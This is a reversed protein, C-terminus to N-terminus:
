VRFFLCYQCFSSIKSMEEPPALFEIGIETTKRLKFYKVSRVKAEIGQIVQNDPLVFAATCMMNLAVPRLPQVVVSCGGESIDRINCHVEDKENELHLRTEINVQIRHHKRLQETQFRVPYAIFDVGGEVSKQVFSEFRYIDGDHLFTAIFSGEFHAALREGFPVVPTEIIIFDGHRAGIIKSKAQLAKQELSRITIENGITLPLKKM